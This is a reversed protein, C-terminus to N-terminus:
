RHNDHAGGGGAKGPAINANEEASFLMAAHNSLRNM